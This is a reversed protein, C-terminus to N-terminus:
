TYFIYLLNRTIEVNLGIIAKFMASQTRQHHESVSRLHRLRAVRRRQETPRKSWYNVKRLQSLAELLLISDDRSGRVNKVIIPTVFSPIRRQM